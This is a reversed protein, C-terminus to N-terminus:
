FSFAIIFRKISFYSVGCDTFQHTKVITQLMTTGVKTVKVFSHHGLMFKM